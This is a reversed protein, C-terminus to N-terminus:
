AANKIEKEGGVSSGHFEGPTAELIYGLEPWKIKNSGGVPIWWKGERM